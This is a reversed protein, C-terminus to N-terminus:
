PNDSYAHKLGASTSPGASRHGASRNAPGGGTAANPPWFTIWLSPKASTTGQQTVVGIETVLELIEQSSVYSPSSLAKDLIAWRTISRV